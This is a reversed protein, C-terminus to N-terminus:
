AMISGVIPLKPVLNKLYIKVLSRGSLFYSLVWIAAVAQAIVSAFASGKIGWGFKFIFVYNLVVNVLGGLIQTYMSMRPNGEARIFNNAGMSFSSIFAGAIIISLYDRAYPLVAASSGLATLIPESFAFFLVAFAAPLLVLMVMANGAVLEAQDKKREGLRISILATAGVGILISLGMIITMVPLAVAVAALGLSGVGRGVFIRAVINYLANVVMGVIAPLSFNWLLRGINESGMMESRDM